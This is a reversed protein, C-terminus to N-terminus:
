PNAWCTTLRRVASISNTVSANGFDCSPSCGISRPM